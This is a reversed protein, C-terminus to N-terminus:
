LLKYKNLVLFGVIGMAGILGITGLFGESVANIANAAGQAAAGAVDGVVGLADKAAEKATEAVEETVSPQWSFYGVNIATVLAYLKSMYLEVEVPEMYASSSNPSGVANKAVVYLADWADLATTVDARRRPNFLATLYPLWRARPPSGPPLVVTRGWRDGPLPMGLLWPIIKVDGPREGKVDEVIEGLAGSESRGTPHPWTEDAGVKDAIMKSLPALFVATMIMAEARPMRPLVAGTRTSPAGNGHVKRLYTRLATYYRLSEVPSPGQDALASSTTM